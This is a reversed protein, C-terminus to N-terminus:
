PGPESPSSKIEESAQTLHLAESRPVFIEMEIPESMLSNRNNYVLEIRFSHRSSQPAAVRINFRDVEGSTLVHSIPVQVQYKHKDLELRTDYQYSPPVQFGHMHPGRFLRVITYFRVLSFQSGTQGYAPAFRIEGWCLAANDIYEGLIPYAMHEYETVPIECREAKGRSYTYYIYKDGEMMGTYHVYELEHLRSLDIGEHGLEESIDITAFESFTGIDVEYAFPRDFSVTRMIHGDFDDRFRDDYSIHNLNFQVSCQHVDGWGENRLHFRRTGGWVVLVPHALSVSKEVHLVARSFFVTEDTNNVLKLDLNPLDWDFSITSPVPNAQAIAQLYPMKPTIKIETDSRLVDYQLCGWALRRSHTRRSYTWTECRNADFISVDLSLDPSPDAAQPQATQQPTDAAHILPVSISNKWGRQYTHWESALLRRRRAREVLSCEEGSLSLATTLHAVTSAQPQQTEGRELKSITVSALGGREALEEQTLGARTRFWILVEAFAVM